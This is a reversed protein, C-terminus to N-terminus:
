AAFADPEIIRTVLPSQLVRKMEAIGDVTADPRLLVVIADAERGYALVGHLRSFAYPIRAALAPDPTPAIPVRATM